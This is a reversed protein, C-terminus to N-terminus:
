IQKAIDYHGKFYGALARPASKPGAVRTRCGPALKAPFSYPSPRVTVRPSFGPWQSGVSSHGCERSFCYNIM